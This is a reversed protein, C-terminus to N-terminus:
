IFDRIDRELRRFIKVGLFLLVVAILAVVALPVLEPPQQYLVINRYADMLHVVPNLIFFFHFREPLIGVVYVVPTLWFWLQLGVTVFERVDKFLVNFVACIFGFAYAFLQQVLFILPLWIWYQPHFMDILFLFAAFFLMGVLYVVAETILIYLPLAALDIQVKGILAAKDSYICAVRAITNSFANWALIGSILYISYAFVSEGLDGGLSALKAGMVASFVFIFILIQLLPMLFAWARGMFSGSYRDVLDQKVFNLLLAARM